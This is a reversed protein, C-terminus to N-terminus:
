TKENNTNNRLLEQVNNHLILFYINEMKKGIFHSHREKRNFINYWSWPQKPSLPFPM